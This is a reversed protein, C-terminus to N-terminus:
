EHRLLLGDFIKNKSQEIKSKMSLVYDPKTGDKWRPYGGLWVYQVLRQFTQRSFVYEGIHVESGKLDIRFPIIAKRDYKRIVEEVVSRSKFGDPAQRFGAETAPFPFLRYVEGIFGRRDVGHIAGMLNGVNRPDEIRYIEWRSEYDEGPPSEAAGVVYRCFDSAFLFCDNLLMMDTEINFFGFAIVGHSVSEFQLPM